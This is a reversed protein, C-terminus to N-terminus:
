PIVRYGLNILDVIGQNTSMITFEHVPTQVRYFRVEKLSEELTPAEGKGELSKAALKELEGALEQLDYKEPFTALEALRTKINQPINNSM